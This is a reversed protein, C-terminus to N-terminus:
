FSVDVYHANLSYMTRTTTHVITNRSMNLTHTGTSLFATLTELIYTNRQCLFTATQYYTQRWGTGDGARRMDSAQRRESDVFQPMFTAIVCKFAAYNGM